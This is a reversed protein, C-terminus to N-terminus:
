LGQVHPYEDGSLWLGATLFDVVQEVGVAFDRVVDVDKGEGVGVDTDTAVPEGV